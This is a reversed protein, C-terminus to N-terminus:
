SCLRTRRCLEASSPCVAASLLSFPFEPSEVSGIRVNITCVSSFLSCHWPPSLIRKIDHIGISLVGLAVFVSRLVGSSVVGLSLWSFASADRLHEEQVVIIVKFFERNFVPGLLIFAPLVFFSRGPRLVPVIIFEVVFKALLQFRFQFLDFGRM